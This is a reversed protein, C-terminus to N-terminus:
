PSEVLVETLRYDARAFVRPLSALHRVTQHAGAPLPADGMGILYRDFSRILRDDTDYYRVNLKVRELPLRGSNELLIHQEHLLKGDQLPRRQEHLSALRLEVTSPKSTAWAFTLPEIPPYPVRAPAREVREVALEARAVRDSEIEITHRVRRVEDPRIPADVPGVAWRQDDRLPRGRADLLRIRHKLETIEESSRNTLALDVFYYTDGTSRYDKLRSGQAEIAVDAPLGSIRLPVAREETDATPAAPAAPATPPPPAPTPSGPVLVFFVGLGLFGVLATAVVATLAARHTNSGWGGVDLQGAPRHDIDPPAPIKDAENLLAVSQRHNPDLNLCERALRAAEYRDGEAGRERWRGLHGTALLHKAHVSTPALAVAERGEAIADDWRQYTAFHGARDTHDQARRAAAALDAESIGLEGAIAQLEQTNLERHRQERVEEVKQIYDRLIKERTEDDM